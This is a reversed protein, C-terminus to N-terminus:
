RKRCPAPAYGNNAPFPNAECDPLEERVEFIAVGIVGINKADGQRNQNVYSEEPAAFRFAAVQDNNKRFGEIILQSDPRVLYGSNHYSGARGNLVDIGDVTTVIEYTRNRDSNNIMLQYRNGETAPLIYQGQNNRYMSFIRGNEDTVRISIPHLLVAPLTNINNPVKQGRYYITATDFPSDTLRSAAVTQVSSNVDEGWKTGLTKTSESVQYDLNHRPYSTCGATILLAVGLLKVLGKQYAKM